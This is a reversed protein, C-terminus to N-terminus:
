VDALIMAVVKRMAGNAQSRLIVLTDTIALGAGIMTSLQRTFATVDGATVRSRARKVYEVPGVRAPTVSLVFYGRERLLAAALQPTAAEVDGVFTKGSKDKARYKYKNM